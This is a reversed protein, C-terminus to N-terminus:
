ATTRPRRVRWWTVALALVLLGLNLGNEILHFTGLRSAPQFLQRSGILDHQRPCAMFDDTKGNLVNGCWQGM